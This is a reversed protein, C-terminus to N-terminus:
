RGPTHRAGPRHRWASRLLAAAIGGLAGYLHADVVVRGGAAASTGPLPGGVQEWGLKGGVLALLAAAFLRERRDTLAAIAGAVLVGHLVGSLGVYWTLGPAALWLGAATTLASLSFVLGWAALRMYPGVLAAVLVLGLANLVLHMANLHVL